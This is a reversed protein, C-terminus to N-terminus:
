KEEESKEMVKALSLLAIGDFLFNIGIMLGVIWASAFPWNDFVIMGLVFSLVGSFLSLWKASANLEFALMISGFGSLLFYIAVFLGLVSLVIAPHILIVLSLILLFFPKFWLSMSKKKSLWANFALACAALLFIGGVFVNFSLAILNPVLIGLVGLIIMVIGTKRLGKSFNFDSHKVILESSDTSDTM